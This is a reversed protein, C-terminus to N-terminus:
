HHRRGRSEAPATAPVRAHAGEGVPVPVPVPVPVRHNGGDLFEMALEFDLPNLRIEVGDVRVSGSSPIFCFDGLTLGYGATPLGSRMMFEAVRKYIDDFDAPAALVEDGPMAGQVRASKSAGERAVLLAPITSGFVRRAVQICPGVERAKPPLGLCMLACRPSNSGVGLLEEMSEFVLPAHGLAWVARRLHERTVLVPDVIVIRQRLGHRSAM